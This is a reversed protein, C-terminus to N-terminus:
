AVPAPSAVAERYFDLVTQAMAEASFKELAARRGAQGLSRAREPALLLEELAAVLAKTDGDYTIGGGTAEIIEPFAGTRPQVVPVGAAM